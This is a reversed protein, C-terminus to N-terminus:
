TFSRTKARNRCSGARTSHYYKRFLLEEGSRIRDSLNEDASKTGESDSDAKDAANSQDKQEDASQEESDKQNNQNATDQAGSDSDQKQESPQTNQQPNSKDNKDPQNNNPKNPNSDEGQQKNNCSQNDSSSQDSPDQSDNKQDNEQHNENSQQSNQSKEQQNQQQNQNNKQDNQDQKNQKDNKNQKQNDDKPPKEKKLQEQREAVLNKFDVLQQKLQPLQLTPDFEPDALGYQDVAKELNALQTHLIDDPIIKEQWQLSELTTTANKAYLSGSNIAARCYLDKGATTQADIVRDFSAHALSTNGKKHALVGLNYNILPDFPADLQQQILTQYKDVPQAKAGFPWWSFAACNPALFSCILLLFVNNM